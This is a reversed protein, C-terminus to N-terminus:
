KSVTVSVPSRRVVTEAVSGLLLRAIGDRGSSGVVVHDIDNTEAYEVIARAPKGDTDTTEIQRGHQSAVTEATALIEATQDHQQRSSTVGNERTEIGQPTDGTLYTPLQKVYLVTVSADEFRDVTYALARRSQTSGDFPVLLHEPREIQQQSHRVATVPVPARRIVTETVSGLLLRKAGDRGHSGMVIHTVNRKETEEIIQDIPRGSTITTEIRATEHESSADQLLEEAVERQQEYHTRAAEATAHVTPEIIKLLRVEDNPFAALAYALADASQESGDYPVLVHQSM